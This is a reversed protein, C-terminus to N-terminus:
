KDRKKNQTNPLVEAVKQRYERSLHLLWDKDPAKKHWLDYDKRVRRMTRQDAGINDEIWNLAHMSGYGAYERLLTDVAALATPDYAPRGGKKSEGEVRLARELPVGDYGYAWLCEALYPFLPSEYNKLDIYHVILKIIEKGADADGRHAREILQRHFEATDPLDLPDDDSM